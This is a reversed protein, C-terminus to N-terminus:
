LRCANVPLQGILSALDSTKFNQLTKSPLAKESLKSKVGMNFKERIEICQYLTSMNEYEPGESINPKVSLLIGNLSFSAQASYFKGNLRM